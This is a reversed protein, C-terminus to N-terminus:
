LQMAALLFVDLLLPGFLLCCLLRGFTVDIVALIVGFLIVAGLIVIFFLGSQGDRAGM